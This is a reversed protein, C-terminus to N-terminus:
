DLLEFCSENQYPIQIRIRNEHSSDVTPSSTESKAMHKSSIHSVLLYKRYFSQFCLHCRYPRYYTLLIQIKSTTLTADSMIRRIVWLYSHKLATSVPTPGRVATLGSTSKCIKNTVLLNRAIKTHVFSYIFTKM